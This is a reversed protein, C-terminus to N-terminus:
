QQAKSKFSHVKTVNCMEILLAVIINNYYLIVPNHMIKHVWPNFLPHALKWLFSTVCLKRRESFSYKKLIAVRIAWTAYHM